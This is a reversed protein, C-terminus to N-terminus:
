QYVCFVRHMGREHFFLVFFLYLDVVDQVLYRIEDTSTAVYTVPM